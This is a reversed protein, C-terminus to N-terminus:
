KPIDFTFTKTGSGKEKIRWEGLLENGNAGGYRSVKLHIELFSGPHEPLEAYDVEIQNEGYRLGKGDQNYSYQVDTKGELERVPTGNARVTGTYNVAYIFVHVREPYEEQGSFPAGSGAQTTSEPSTGTGAPDSSGDGPLATEQQPFTIVRLGGDNAAGKAGMGATQVIALDAPAMGSLKGFVSFGVFSVLALPVIVYGALAVGPWALKDATGCSFLVEGKMGRLDRYLLYHYIMAFPFFIVGLIPGVLPIMGILVSAVWVPLLRLAVNFWEGRVYERSKLLADMGHVDEDVLIFQAFFFWVMFIIGPLVFLMFGGGIVFGTLCGVWMLPLVIGHGRALADRLGLQDDAVGYLFGGFCRFGLYLGALLGVGGTLVLAVGGKAMGAVMVLGLTVGLPAMFAVMTLLYLAILTGCRRQFM